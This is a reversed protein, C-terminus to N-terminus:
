GAWPPSSCWPGRADNFTARAPEGAAFFAFRCADQLILVPLVTGTAMLTSGVRGGLFWGTGLMGLAVPATFGVILGTAQSVTRRRRTGTETSHRVGLPQGVVAREVGVLTSFMLFSVAFADFARSGAAHVILVSLVINTLASLAQDILNWGARGLLRLHGRRGATPATM